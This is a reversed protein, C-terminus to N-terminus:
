QGPLGTIATPTRAVAWTKPDGLARVDRGWCRVGSANLLACSVQEGAALQTAPGLQAVPVPVLRTNDTGDGLAGEDNTGWCSVAGRRDLACNHDEGAVIAAVDRLGEVAVITAREEEAGDGLRGGFGSGWCVV